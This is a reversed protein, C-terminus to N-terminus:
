ASEFTELLRQRLAPPIEGRGLRACTDHALDLTEFLARCRLCLEEQPVDFPVGRDLSEQKARLLDLCMQRPHDPPPAERHPLREALERRLLLRGRHVRTKVTAPKLGLIAAIDAIPLEVIEKLVLPMRFHMPLRAVAAEVAEQAERRLQTDLPGEFTAPDPIQDDPNPLLESLSGITQPEGSKKRRRRQCARAAITYLWTVPSSDGQFQHWKRWAILFIEQVLDEADEPHGCLKLALRHLRGGHEDLLHPLAIDAPQHALGAGQSEKM